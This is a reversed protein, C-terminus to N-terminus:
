KDVVENIKGKVLDLNQDIKEQHTEYVKPLTFLGVVGLILFFSDIWKMM